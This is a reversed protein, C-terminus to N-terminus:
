TCFSRHSGAVRSGFWRTELRTSIDDGRRAGRRRGAAPVNGGSGWGVATVIITKGQVRGM